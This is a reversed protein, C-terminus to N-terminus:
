NWEDDYSEGYSEDMGWGASAFAEEDDDSSDSEGDRADDQCALGSACDCFDKIGNEDYFTGSDCCNTCDPREEVEFIESPSFSPDYPDIMNNEM